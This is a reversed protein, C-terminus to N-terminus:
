ATLSPRDLRDMEIGTAKHIRFRQFESPFRKGQLWLTVASRSVGVREAFQTQSQGTAALYERIAQMDATYM